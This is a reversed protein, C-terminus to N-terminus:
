SKCAGISSWESCLSECFISDWKHLFLNDSRRLFPNDSADIEQVCSLRSVLELDSPNKALVLTVQHIGSRSKPPNLCYFFKHKNFTQLSVKVRWHDDGPEGTMPYPSESPTEGDFLTVGFFIGNMTFYPDNFQQSYDTYSILHNFDPQPHEAKEQTVHYAWEAEYLTEYLDQLSSFFDDDNNMKENFQQSYDTNGILHNFDPQYFTGYHDQLSSFFDDGNNM